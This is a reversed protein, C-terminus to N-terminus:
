AGREARALRRKLYAVARELRRLMTACRVPGNYRVNNLQWELSEIHLRTWLGYTGGDASDNAVTAVTSEGNTEDRGCVGCTPASGCFECFTVMGPRHTSGKLIRKM